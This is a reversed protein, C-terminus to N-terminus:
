ENIYELCENITDFGEPEQGDSTTVWFNHDTFDMSKCEDTDDWLAQDAILNDKSNIYVGNRVEVYGNKIVETLYSIM